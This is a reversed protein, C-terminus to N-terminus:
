DTTERGMVFARDRTHSVELALLKGPEVAVAHPLIHLCPQWSSLQPPKNEFTIGAGFDLHIWSIVAEAIGPRTARLGIFHTGEHPTDHGLDFGLVEVGDSLIEAEGGAAGAGLLPPAFRNFPTLDFDMVTEVRYRHHHGKGSVLAAMLGIHQPIMIADPKLFRQRAIETIALVNEGLLCNDLLEAVFLDARQPMDRGPEMDYVDKAIVTIRDALGNRAIIDRAAAAIEPSRECTYVHAAGSRAALMALLGTGTGVEFVVMGPRVHENLARAYAENRIQDHVIEFHWLPAEKRQVWETLARIRYDTPTLLRAARALLRADRIEHKTRFALAMRALREPLDNRDSLATVFTRAAASLQASDLAQSLQPWVQSSFPPSVHHLTM